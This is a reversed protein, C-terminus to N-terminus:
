SGRLNYPLLPNPYIGGNVSLPRQGMIWDSGHEIRNVIVLAQTCLERAGIRGHLDLMQKERTEVVIEVPSVFVRDVHPRAHQKEVPRM